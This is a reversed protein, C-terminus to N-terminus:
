ALEMVTRKHERGWRIMELIIASFTRCYDTLEYEIQSPFDECVTRTVLANLELEKLERSLARPTIGPLSQQIDKFRKNGNCLSNIVPLRWKGGIAYLADQLARAEESQNRIM